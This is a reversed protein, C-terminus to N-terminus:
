VFGGERGGEGQTKCFRLLRLQCRAKERFRLLWPKLLLLLRGWVLLLPSMSVKVGAVEEEEEVAGAV